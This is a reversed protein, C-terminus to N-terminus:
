YNHAVSLSFPLINKYKTINESLLLLMIDIMLWRICKWQNKRKISFSLWLLEFGIIINSFFPFITFSERSQNCLMSASPNRKNEPWLLNSVYFFWIIEDKQGPLMHVVQLLSVTANFYFHRYADIYWARIRCDTHPHSSSHVKCHHIERRSLCLATKSSNFCWTVRSPLTSM